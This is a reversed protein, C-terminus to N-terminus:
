ASTGHSMLPSHSAPALWTPSTALMKVEINMCPPM